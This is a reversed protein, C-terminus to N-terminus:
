LFTLYVKMSHSALRGDSDFEFTLVIDKKYIMNEALGSLRAKVQMGNDEYFLPHRAGVFNVVDTKSSGPPLAKRIADDLQVSSLVYHQRAILFAGALVLLALLMWRIRKKM